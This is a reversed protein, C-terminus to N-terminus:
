RTKQISVVCYVTPVEIRLWIREERSLEISNRGAGSRVWTQKM